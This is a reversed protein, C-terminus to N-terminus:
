DEVTFGSAKVIAGWRLLYAKMIAALSDPSMSAPVFGLKTLGNQGEPADLADRIVSSLTAIVAAPTKAPVYVAFYEQVDVATYGLEKFTPVDPLYPSRTGGTTALIRFRAEDYRPLANFGCAIQGGVIDQVLPAGGKYPVHTLEIEAAKAFMMGAFHPMSGAGPSGFAAQLPNAQCWQVFNEVTKVAVPVVPGVSLTFQAICAATVLAFDNIPDYPLTKYVHPYLVMTSAPALLLVTGDAASDKVTAVGIRGGAGARNEVIVSTAYAGKLQEAILRAIVDSAGGAPFGVVIRASKGIPQANALRQFGTGSPALSSALVALVARRSLM